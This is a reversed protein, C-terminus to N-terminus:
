SHFGPLFGFAWPQGLRFQFDSADDPVETIGRYALHELGKGLLPVEVKPGDLSVETAELCFTVQFCSPFAAGVNVARRDSRSANNPVYHIIQKEPQKIALGQRQELVEDIIASQALSFNVM